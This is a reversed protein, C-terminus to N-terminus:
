CSEATSGYILYGGSIHQKQQLNKKLGELVIDKFKAALLASVLFNLFSNAPIYYEILL